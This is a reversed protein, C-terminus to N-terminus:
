LIVFDTFHPPTKEFLFINEDNYREFKVLSFTLFDAIAFNLIIQDM